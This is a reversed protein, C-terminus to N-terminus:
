LMSEHTKKRFVFKLRVHLLRTEEFIGRSFDSMSGNVCECLEPQQERLLDSQKTEKM